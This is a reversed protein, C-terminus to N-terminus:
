TEDFTRNERVWDAVSEGLDQKVDALFHWEWILDYILRTKEANSKIDHGENLDCEMLTYVLYGFESLKM